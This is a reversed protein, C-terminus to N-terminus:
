FRVQVGKAIPFTMGMIIVDFQKDLNIMNIAEEGNTVVYTEFGCRKFLIMHHNRVCYNREVILASLLRASSSSGRSEFIM